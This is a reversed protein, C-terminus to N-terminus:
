KENDFIRKWRDCLLQIDAQDPRMHGYALSQWRLTLDHSFQSLTVDGIGQVIVVCEGETHSDYFTLDHQHM